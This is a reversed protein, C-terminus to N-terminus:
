AATAERIAAPIHTVEHLASAGMGFKPTVITM